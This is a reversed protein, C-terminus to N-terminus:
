EPHNLRDIAAANEDRDGKATFFAGIYSNEPYFFVGPM